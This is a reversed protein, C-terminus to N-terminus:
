LMLSLRISKIFDIFTNLIPFRYLYGDLIHDLLELSMKDKPMTIELSDSWFSEVGVTDRAKVRVAYEGKDHWVHFIEMPEGSDYYGTWEDVIYDGDWDWGYSVSDGDPDTTSTTYRYSTGVNGELTGNPKSPKKPQDDDFLRTVVTKDAFGTSNSFLSLIVILNPADVRKLDPYGHGAPTWIYEANYVGFPHRELSIVNDTIYSLLAYNYPRGSDDKWRSDIELVSLLLRGTYNVADDNYISFEISIDKHCPCQSWHADMEIDLAPVDRLGCGEVAAIYPDSSSQEGPIHVYGGDFYVGPSVSSGLEQARAEAVDNEDTVLSVYYFNHEESSYMDYLQGSAPPSSADTSQSVYEVLVTHPEYSSTSLETNNDILKGVGAISQVLLLGVFLSVFIIKKM